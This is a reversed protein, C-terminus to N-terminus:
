RGHPVAPTGALEGAALDRDAPIAAAASAASDEAATAARLDRAAAAAAARAVEADAKRQKRSRKEPRLGALRDVAAPLDALKKIVADPAQM